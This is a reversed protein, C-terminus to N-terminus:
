EISWGGAPGGVSPGELVKHAPSEGWCRLQKGAQRPSLRRQAGCTRIGRVGPRQGWLSRPAALTQEASYIVQICILFFGFKWMQRTSLHGASGPVPSPVAPPAARSWRPPCPLIAPPCHLDGLHPGWPRPSSCGASGKCGKGPVRLTVEASACAFWHGGLGWVPSLQKQRSSAKAGQAM